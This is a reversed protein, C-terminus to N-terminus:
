RSPEVRIIRGRDGVGIFGGPVASFWRIPASPEPCRGLPGLDPHVIEGDATALISCDPAIATVTRGAPKRDWSSNRGWSRSELIIGGSSTVLSFGDPGFAGCGLDASIGTYQAIWTKGGDGTEMILGDSGYIWGTQEDRFVIGSIDNKLNLSRNTWSFGGDRTQLLTGRDGAIFGTGDGPFIIGNLHEGTVALSRWSGGADESILIMGCDGAVIFVRDRSHAVANLDLQVTDEGAMWTGGWDSTILMRGEAGVAVGNGLRDFDVCKLDPALLSDDLTWTRGSDITRFVIGWTGVAIGTGSGGFDVSLLQHGCTDRIKTLSNKERDYSLIWGYGVAMSQDGSLRCIDRLFNTTVPQIFRWTDGGDESVSILGFSGAIQITKGDPSFDAGYSSFETPVRLQRWSKGGTDTKLVIGQYGVAYGIGSSNVWIIRLGNQIGTGQERWSEGGNDTSLILGDDGAAWGTRRDLFWIGVLRKDTPTKVPRWFRGGNETVLITGGAGCTFVLETDVAQIDYLRHVTHSEQKRWTRGGDATMMIGGEFGVAWAAQTGPAFCVSRFHGPARGPRLDIVTESCVNALCCFLAFIWIAAANRISSTMVPFKGFGRM